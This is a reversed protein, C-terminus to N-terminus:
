IAKITLAHKELKISSKPNILNYLVEKISGVEEAISEM